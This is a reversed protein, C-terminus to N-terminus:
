IELTIRKYEEKTTIGNKILENCCDKLTKVGKNSNYGRLDAADKSGKIIEKAKSDMKIYEYIVTRGTYGTGRCKKCGKGKYSEGNKVRCAPCIKRVLRQAIVGILADGVLYSPIGMDVLRLVASAADNTHLTSIVLHGTIAARVAIRATEEDRIEGVMIIDPDQRLITRLGEAFSLGTKRNVNVQNIGELTFEVPDEITVINKEEKKLSNIMSYLTTSKGSGTPGTVLIIGHSDQLIEKIFNIGEIKFGLDKLEMKNKESYLIRIVIKEGDIVPLTSIRFDYSNSNYNFSIKGDQPTRKETINMGAMVKIRTAVMSYITKPFTISEQLVGDIRYRVKVIEKFPEIHIDSAENCIAKVIISTTLRIVPSDQFVVGGENSKEPTKYDLKLSKLANEANKRSFCSSIGSFIQNRDAKYIVVERGTLFKIEDLTNQPLTDVAAVGITFDEMKFPLICNKLCLEEPLLNAAELDINSGELYVAKIIRM